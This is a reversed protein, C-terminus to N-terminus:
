LSVMLSFTAVFSYRAGNRYGLLRAATEITESSEAPHIVMNGLEIPAYQSKAYLRGNDSSLRLIEESNKWLLHRSWTTTAGPRSVAQLDKKYGDLSRAYRM